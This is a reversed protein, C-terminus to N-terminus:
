IEREKSIGRKNEHEEVCAKEVIGFIADNVSFNLWAANSPM